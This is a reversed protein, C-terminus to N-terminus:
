SIILIQNYNKKVRAATEFVVSWYLFFYIFGFWCKGKLMGAINEWNSPEVTRFMIPAHLVEVWAAGTAKRKKIVHFRKDSNHSATFKSSLITYITVAM